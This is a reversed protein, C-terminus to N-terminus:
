FVAVHFIHLIYSKDIIPSLLIDVHMTLASEHCSISSWSILNRGTLLSLFTSIGCRQNVLCHLIAPHFPLCPTVIWIKVDTKRFSLTSCAEFDGDKIKIKDPHRVSGDLTYSTWIFSLYAALKMFQHKKWKETGINGLSPPHKFMLTQGSITNEIHWVNIPSRSRLAVVNCQQCNTLKSYKISHLFKFPLRKSASFSISLAREKSYGLLYLYLVIM